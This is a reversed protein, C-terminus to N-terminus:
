IKGGIVVGWFFIMHFVLKTQILIAIQLYITPGNKAYFLILRSAWFNPHWHEFIMAIDVIVDDILFKPLNPYIMFVPSLFSNLLALSFTRVCKFASHYLFESLLLILPRTSISFAIRAAKKTLKSSFHRSRFVCLSFTNLSHVTRLDFCFM